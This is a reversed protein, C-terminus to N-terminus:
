ELQHKSLNELMEFDEFRVITDVRELVYRGGSEGLRLEAKVDKGL